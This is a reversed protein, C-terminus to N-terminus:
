AWNVGPTDMKGECVGDCKPNNDKWRVSLKITIIMERKIKVNRKLYSSMDYIEKVHIVIHSISEMTNIVGEQLVIESSSLVSTYPTCM